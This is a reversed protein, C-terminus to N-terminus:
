KEVSSKAAIKHAGNVSLACTVIPLSLAGLGQDTKTGQCNPALLFCHAVWLVANAENSLRRGHYNSNLLWLLDPFDPM